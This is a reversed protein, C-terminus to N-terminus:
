CDLRVWRALYREAHRVQCPRSVDLPSRDARDRVVLHAAPALAHPLGLRRTQALGRAPRGERALTAVRQFTCSPPSCAAGYLPQPANDSSCGFAFGAAGLAAGLAATAGRGLRTKVRYDPVRMFYQLSVGCFPCSREHCRVHRSCKPCAKLCDLDGM